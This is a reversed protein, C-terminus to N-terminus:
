KLQTGRTHPNSGAASLMGLIDFLATNSPELRHCCLVKVGQIVGTKARIHPTQPWRRIIHWFTCYVTSNPVHRGQKTAIQAEAGRVDVRGFSM